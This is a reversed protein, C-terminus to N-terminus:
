DAVARAREYTIAYVMPSDCIVDLGQLLQRRAVALMVDYSYGGAGEVYPELVDMIDDKDILTWGLRESLARGITTKGCGPLGKVLVLRMYSLFEKDTNTQCRRLHCKVSFLHPPCGKM